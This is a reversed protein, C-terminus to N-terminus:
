HCRDGRTPPNIAQIAAIAEIYGTPLTFRGWRMQKLFPQAPRRVTAKALM